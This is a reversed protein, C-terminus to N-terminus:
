NEEIIAKGQFEGLYIIVNDYRRIRLRSKDLDGIRIKIVKDSKTELGQRIIDEKLPYDKFFYVADKFWIQLNSLKCTTPKINVIDGKIMDRLNTKKTFHYCYEDKLNDYEENTLKSVKKPKINYLICFFIIGLIGFFLLIIINRIIFKIIDIDDILTINLLIMGIGFLAIISREAIENENDIDFKKKCFNIYKEFIVKM